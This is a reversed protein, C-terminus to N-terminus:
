LGANSGWYGAWYFTTLMKPIGAFGEMTYKNQHIVAVDDLAYSHGLTNAYLLFAFAFITLLFFKRHKLYLSHLKGKGSGPPFNKPFSKKEQKKKLPYNNKFICHLDLTSSFYKHWSSVLDSFIV